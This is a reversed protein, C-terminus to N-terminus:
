RQVERGGNGRDGGEEMVETGGEEMVETRGGEEM